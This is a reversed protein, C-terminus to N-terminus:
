ALGSLRAKREREVHTIYRQIATLRASPLDIYECGIRVYRAGSRTVVDFRNRIGLRTALLGEGPLTIRCNELVDGNEFLGAQDPTLMLGVGGGSIDLLPVDLQHLGERHPISTQLRIPNAIPMALRFFERRQLRLLTDPIRGVFAPRGEHETCALSAISFQVKIKDVVATLILKDAQLARTNIDEDSGVDVLIRNADPEIALISTLFFANGRDFHVTVLANKQILTRLVALIEMRAHLLYQSYDDIQELEFRPPLQGKTEFPEAETM